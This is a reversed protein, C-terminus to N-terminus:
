LKPPPFTPQPLVMDIHLVDVWTLPLVNGHSDFELLQWFQPEHAKKGDPSQMWRDGTWVFVTEGNTTTIPIVFNQQARSASASIAGKYNCGNGPSIQATSPLTHQMTPTPNSSNQICGLDSPGAQKRWPGLPHTSTYVIMGSGQYCFCCCHGTTLYYTTAYEPVVGGGGDVDIVDLTNLQVRRKWLSPAECFDEQLVTGDFDGGPFSANIGASSLYDASLKEISMPGYSYVIYATGDDDVMVDFDGMSGNHNSPLFPRANTIANTKLEWPGSPHLSTAVGIRSGIGSAAVYNYYLVYLQTSPNWVLHPRYLVGCDPLETCRLADGRYTWTGSSMNPSSWVSVNHNPHFGCGGTSGGQCGTLPPDDCLAGGVDTGYSAAHIWWEGELWRITGDHANIIEGDVSLRPKTNDITISGAATSVMVMCVVTLVIFVMAMAM